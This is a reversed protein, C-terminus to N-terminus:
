ARCRWIEDAYEAITRDSSFFGIRAVNLIAKHTWEDPSRYLEALKLHAAHYAAFDALVMYPDKGLLVQPAKVGILQMDSAIAPGVNPIQQLDTIQARSVTKM